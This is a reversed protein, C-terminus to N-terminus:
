AEEPQGLTGESQRRILAEQEPGAMMPASERHQLVPHQGTRRDGKQRAIDPRALRCQKVSQECLASRLDPEPKNGIRMAIATFQQVPRQLRETELRIRVLVINPEELTKLVEKERFIRRAPTDHEDEVLCLVEVAVAKFFQPHQGVDIGTVVLEQLKKKGALGFQPRRDTM